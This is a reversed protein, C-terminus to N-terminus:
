SSYGVSQEITQNQKQLDNSIIKKVVFSFTFTSGLWLESEVSIDGGMLKSIEKALSLGLWTWPYLKSSSWDVQRFRDFIYDLNDKSIWIGTDQISIYIKQYDWLNEIHPCSVFIMGKETFKIANGILNNLVQTIKIEDSLVPISIDQNNHDMELSVNPNKKTISHNQQTIIDSIIEKISVKDEKLVVMWAELKAMELINSMIELLSTWSQLIIKWYEKSRPDNSKDLLLQAFWLIGNLPTRVEHSMNALFQDKLKTAEQADKIAKKSLRLNEEAYIKEQELRKQEEVFASIDISIGIMLKKGQEVFPSKKLMLIHEGDILPLSITDELTDDNDEFEEISDLIEKNKQLLWNRTEDSLSPFLEEDDKGIIEQSKKGIMRSFSENVRTYKWEEDIMFFGVSPINKLLLELNEINLKFQNSEEKAKNLCNQLDEQNKKFHKNIYYGAIASIGALTTTEWFNLPQNGFWQFIIDAAPMSGLILYIKTQSSLSINQIKSKARELIWWELSSRM